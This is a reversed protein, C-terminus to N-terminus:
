STLGSKPSVLGIKSIFFCLGWLALASRAGLIPFECLPFTYSGNCDEEAGVAVVGGGVAVAGRGGVAVAGGGAVGGLGCM